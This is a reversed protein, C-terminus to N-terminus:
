IIGEDGFKKALWNAGIILIFGVVSKVMGVATAFRYDAAQIGRFYSFTDLM